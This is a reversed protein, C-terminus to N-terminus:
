DPAAQRAHDIVKAQHERVREHGAGPYFHAEVPVLPPLAELAHRLAKAPCYPDEEGQGILLPARLSGGLFQLDHLALTRFVRERQDPHHGLYARIELIGGDVAAAMAVPIACFCPAQASAFALEPVLCALLAALGGGQSFGAVGIRDTPADGGAAMWRIAVVCDLIVRGYYYDDPDLIGKTMFGTLYPVEHPMYSPTGSRYEIPDRTRGGQGRIDITLVAFGSDTWDRTEMPNARWGAYVHLHLVAGVPNRPRVWSGHVVCGDHSVYAIEEVSLGKQMWQPVPDRRVICPAAVRQIRSSWHREIETPDPKVLCM